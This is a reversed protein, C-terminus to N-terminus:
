CRTNPLAPLRSCVFQRDLIARINSVNEWWEIRFECSYVFIARINEKMDEASVNTGPSRKSESKVIFVVVVVLNSRVYIYEYVYVVNCFLIVLM